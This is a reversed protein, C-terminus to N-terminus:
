ACPQGKAAIERALQEALEGVFGLKESSLDPHNVADIIFDDPTMQATRLRSILTRAHAAGRRYGKSSRAFVEPQLKM